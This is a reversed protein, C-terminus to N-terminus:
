KGRLSFLISELSATRPILNRLGVIVILSTIKYYKGLSTCLLFVNIGVCPEKTPNQKKDNRNRCKSSYLIEMEFEYATPSVPLVRTCYKYYKLCFQNIM